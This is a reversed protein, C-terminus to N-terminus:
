LTSDLSLSVGQDEHVPAPCPALLEMRYFIIRNLFSVGPPSQDCLLGLSVWPQLASQCAYVSGTEKGAIYKKYSIYM